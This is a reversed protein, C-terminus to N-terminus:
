DEKKDSPIKTGGSQAQSSGATQQQGGGEQQLQQQQAQNAAMQRIFSEVVEPNNEHMHRAAEMM